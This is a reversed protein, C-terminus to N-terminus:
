ADDGFDLVPRVEVELGPSTPVKKAWAVATELDPANVIYIGGMQERAEAFPGDTVIGDQRVTAATDPWNLAVGFVDAGAADLDEGFANHAEVIAQSAADDLAREAAHDGYLLLAFKM